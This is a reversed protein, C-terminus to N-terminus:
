LIEKCDLCPVYQSKYTNPDIWIHLLRAIKCEYKIETTAMLHKYDDIEKTTPVVNVYLIIDHM